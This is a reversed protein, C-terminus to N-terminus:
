ACGISRLSAYWLVGVVCMWFSLVIGLYFAIGSYTNVRSRPSPGVLFGPIGEEDRLLESLQHRYFYYGRHRQIIFWCAYAAPATVLLLPVWLALTMLLLKHHTLVFADLASLTAVAWFQENTCKDMRKQLLDILTKKLSADM